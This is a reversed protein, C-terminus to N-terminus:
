FLKATQAEVDYAYRTKYDTVGYLNFSVTPEDGLPQVQHIAGPTFGIIDGPGLVKEDVAELRHPQEATPSRRWLRNKEEGGIMAVIGWTGHNHITSVQGPAWAVMQVTLPFEYERYLFKVSWGTKASPPDYEMQLWYSSTLLQRVLPTIKQIRRSNDSEDALIDELDTLFRYLRYVREPAQVDTNGFTTYQGDETVLWNHNTM